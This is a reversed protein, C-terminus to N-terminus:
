HPKKMAVNEFFLMSSFPARVIIKRVATFFINSGCDIRVSCLSAFPSGPVPTGPEFLVAFALGFFFIPVVYSRVFLVM